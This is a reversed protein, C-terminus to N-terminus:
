SKGANCRADSPCAWGERRAPCRDKLTGWLMSVTYDNRGQGRRQRLSDLLKPEPVAALFERVTQLSPSDELAGWAFMAQTTTIRMRADAPNPAAFKEADNKM